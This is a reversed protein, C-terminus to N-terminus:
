APTSAVSNAAGKAHHLRLCRENLIKQESRPRKASLQHRSTGPKTASKRRRDDFGLQIADYGDTGKSKVQMVHCPGAQIVTVPLLTGDDAFFQTMGIKKGLLGSVM